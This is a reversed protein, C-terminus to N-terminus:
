RVPTHLNRLKRAHGHAQWWEPFLKEVKVALLEAANRMFEESPEIRGNEVM